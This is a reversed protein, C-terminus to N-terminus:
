FINEEHIPSFNCECSKKVISALHSILLFSALNGYKELWRLLWNKLERKIVIRWIKRRCVIIKLANLSEMLNDFHNIRWFYKQLKLNEPRDTRRDLLYLSGGTVFKILNSSWILKIVQYSFALKQYIFFDIIKNSVHCWAIFFLQLTASTWHGTNERLSVCM